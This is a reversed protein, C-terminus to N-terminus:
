NSAKWTRWRTLWELHSEGENKKPENESPSYEKEKAYDLLANRLDSKKPAYDLIDKGIYDESLSDLLKTIPINNELGENFKKYMDQRFSSLRNNYKEDFFKASSTGEIMPVIKNIFQFFQKNAKNLELDNQGAFINNFFNDDQLNTSGNGIRETISKANKEGVLKFKQFPHKIENNLIKNIIKNNISYDNDLSIKNNIIKNNLDNTQNDYEENGTSYNYLESPNIGVYGNTEGQLAKAIEKKKKLLVAGTVFNVTKNQFEAISRLEKRLDERADGTINPYNKNDQLLSLQKFANAIGGKKVMETEILAPLQSKYINFTEQSIIGDNVLGQYDQEISTALTKFVFKNGSIATAISSKVKQEVQSVRTNVLNTRTKNLINNVYTSKNQSFNISFLNSVNRSPALSKYKNKIDNFKQNFYAIGDEPTSKLEAQEAANFVEVTADASLEGAKVKTEIEKEKIYYDEAAKGLPRLAAAVSQNPDIKINSVVSASEATPRATAAFTPIKPM